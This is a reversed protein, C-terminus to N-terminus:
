SGPSRTASRIYEIVSEAAERKFTQYSEDRATLSEKSLERVFAWGEFRPITVNVRYNTTRSIPTCYPLVEWPKAPSGVYGDVRKQVYEILTM